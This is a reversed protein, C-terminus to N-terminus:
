SSLWHRRVWAEVDQIPLGEAYGVMEHMKDVSEMDFRVGTMTPDLRFLREELFQEAQFNPVAETGNMFINILGKRLWRLAGWDKDAETGFDFKIFNGVEGTGLSLAVMDQLRCTKTKLLAAIACMIPNNAVMGGDSYRGHTPFYTPASSSGMVVNHVYLRKDGEKASDFVRPGWRRQRAATFGDLEFAVVVLRKHPPIDGLQAEGYVVKLQEFLYEKNYKPKLLGGLTCRRRKFIQHGHELYLTSLEEPGRNLALGGALIAGTSTGAYCTADQWVRPNLRTLFTAPILGLIGGGDISLIRQHSM